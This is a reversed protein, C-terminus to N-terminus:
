SQRHAIMNHKWWVSNQVFDPKKKEGLGVRGVCSAEQIVKLTSSHLCGHNPLPYKLFYLLIQNLEKGEQNVQKQWPFFFLTFRTKYFSWTHLLPFSPKIFARKRMACSQFRWRKAQKNWKNKGKGGAATHLFCIEPMKNAWGSVYRASYLSEKKIYPSLQTLDRM